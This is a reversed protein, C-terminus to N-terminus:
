ALSQQFLRQALILSLLPRINRPITHFVHWRQRVPFNSILVHGLQWPTCIGLAFLRLAHVYIEQLGCSRESREPHAQAAMTQLCLMLLAAVQPAALKCAKPSSVESSMESM